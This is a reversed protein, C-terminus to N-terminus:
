NAESIMKWFKKYTETGLNLGAQSSIAMGNEPILYIDLIFDDIWSKVTFDSQIVSIIQFTDSLADLNSYSFYTSINKDSIYEQSTKEVTKLGFGIYDATKGVVQMATDTYRRALGSSAMQFSALGLLIIFAIPILFSLILKSRLSSLWKPLPIRKLFSGASIKETPIENNIIRESDHDKNSM